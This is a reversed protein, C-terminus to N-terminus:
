EKFPGSTDPEYFRSFLHVDSVSVHVKNTSMRAAVKLDLLKMLERDQVQNIRNIRSDIWPNPAFELRKLAEARTKAPESEGKWHKQWFTPKPKEMEGKIADWLLRKRQNYIDEIAADCAVALRIANIDVYSGPKHRNVDNDDSDDDDNNFM